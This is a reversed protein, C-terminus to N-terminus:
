GEPSGLLGSLIKLYVDSFHYFMNFIENFVIRYRHMKTKPQSGAHKQRKKRATKPPKSSLMVHNTRAASVEHGM